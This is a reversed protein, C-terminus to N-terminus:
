KMSNLFADFDQDSMPATSATSAAALAPPPLPPATTSAAAAPATYGGFLGQLDDAPAAPAPPLPPTSVSAGTSFLGLLDTDASSSGASSAASAASSSAAAGPPPRLKALPKKKSLSPGDIDGGGDQESSVLKLAGAVAGSSGGGPQPQPPAASVPLTSDDDVPLSTNGTREATLTRVVADNVRLCLAFVDEDLQGESGAEILAQLRDQCAELFGVVEALAEDAHIGSSLPLMERCLRVKDIVVQLDTRLKACSDGTGQQQQSSSHSSSSSSSSGAATTSPVQAPAPFPLGMRSAANFSEAFLPLERTRSLFAYHWQQLYTLALDQAKHGARGQAINLIESIFPKNVLAPFTGGCNTIVTDTLTLALEVVHNDSNSLQVLLARCAPLGESSKLNIIDCIEMNRTWDPGILLTDTAKLVISGIPTQLEAAVSSLGFFDM